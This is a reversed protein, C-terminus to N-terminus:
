INKISSGSHFFVVQSVYAYIPLCYQFPDLLFIIHRHLNYEHSKLNERRRTHLHSDVPKNRRTTQYFNVSMESKSAAKMRMAMIIFASLVRFRRYVKVLSCPAVFWFVAM